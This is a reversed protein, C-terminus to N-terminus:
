SIVRGHCKRWDKVVMYAVRRAVGFWRRTTLEFKQARPPIPRHHDTSRTCHYGGGM